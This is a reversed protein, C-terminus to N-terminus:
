ETSLDLVMDRLREDRVWDVGSGTVIASTVGKIVKWRQRSTKLEHELVAIEQVWSTKDASERDCESRAEALHLVENAYEVNRLNVQHVELELEALFERAQEIEDHQKAADVGAVDRDHIFPSLDRVLWTLSKTLVRAKTQAAKGSSLHPTHQM